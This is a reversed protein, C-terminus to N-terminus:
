KSGSWLFPRRATVIQDGEKLGSIVEQYESGKMGFRVIREVEKGEELVYVSQESNEKFHKDAAVRL